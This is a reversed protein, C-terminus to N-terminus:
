GLACAATCEEGFIGPAVAIGVRPWQQARDLPQLNGKGGIRCRRGLYQDFLIAPV